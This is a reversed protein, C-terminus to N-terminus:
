EERVPEIGLLRTMQFYSNVIQRDWESEPESRKDPYNQLVWLGLRKSVDDLTDPKSTNLRAVCSERTSYIDEILADAITERKLCNAVTWLAAESRRFYEITHNLDLFTESTTTPVLHRGIM